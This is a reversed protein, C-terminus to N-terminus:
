SQVAMMDEDGSAAFRYSFGALRDFCDERQTKIMHKVEWHIIAPLLRDFSFISLIYADTGETDIQLLDLRESPLRKLVDDFPICSVTEERIMGELGPILNSHKVITEREFSAARWGACPRKRVGSHFAHAATGVIWCRRFFWSAITATTSNAYSALPGLSHSWWFAAGAVNISTNECPITLLGMSCALRSLSFEPGFEFMRRCVVDDFEIARLCAPELLQRPWYRTGQVGYGLKALVTNLLAKM